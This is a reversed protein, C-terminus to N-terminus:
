KRSTRRKKGFGFMKFMKNTSRKKMVRKTKKNNHKRRRSKGGDIASGDKIALRESSSSINSSSTPPQAETGDIIRNNIIQPSTSQNAEGTSSTTPVPTTVSSSSVGSADSTTSGTSGTSGTSDSETSLTTESDDSRGAAAPGPSSKEFLDSVAKKIATEDMEANIIIPTEPAMSGQRLTLTTSKDGPVITGSFEIADTKNFGM